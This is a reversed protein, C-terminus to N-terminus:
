FARKYIYIDATNEATPIYELRIQGRDVHERIFHYKIDVHKTRAHFVQEKSMAISAQNDCHILTPSDQPFDLEGLLSRLWLAEKTAHAIALYEAVATSDAVTPQKKSSWSIPTGSLFFAYGSISRRSDLDNAHDADAYGIPVWPGDDGGYVLALDLTGKVYRLVRKAAAYHAIGPNSMFQSLRQVAYSLDPRTAMAAYMLAGVISAYDKDRMEEVGRPDAPVAVKVFPHEPRISHGGAQLRGDPIPGPSVAMGLMMRPEGLEVVQFPMHRLQEKLREMEAKTSAALLMDDVHIVVISRSDKFVRYY